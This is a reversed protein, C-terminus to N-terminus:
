ACAMQVVRVDELRLAGFSAWTYVQWTNRLDPRISAVSQPEQSVGLLIGQRQFLTVLRESSGNLKVRETRVFTMGLYQDVSGRVLAQVTNYDASTIREDSLLAATEYSTHVLVRGDEEVESQDMLQKATVLKNVTLGLSGSALTQRAPLALTSSGTHGYTVSRSFASLIEDDFARGMASAHRMTYQSEPDILLKVKDAKDILTAPVEYDVPYLWRRDNTIDATPTQGHRDAIVQASTGGLRERPMAEGVVTETMVFRRLRSDRQEALMAVTASFQTVFADPISFSM